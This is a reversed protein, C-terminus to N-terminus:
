RGSDSMVSWGEERCIDGVHVPVVLANLPKKLTYFFLVHVRPYVRTEKLPFVIQQGGRCCIINTAWGM